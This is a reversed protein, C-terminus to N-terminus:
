QRSSQTNGGRVEMMALDPIGLNSHMRHDFEAGHYPPYCSSMRGSM